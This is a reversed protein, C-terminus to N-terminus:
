KIKKGTTHAKFVCVCVCLCHLCKLQDLLLHTPFLFRYNLFNHHHDLVPGPQICVPVRDFFTADSKYVHLRADATNTRPSILYRTWFFPQAFPPPPPGWLRTSSESFTEFNRRMVRQWICNGISGLSVLFESSLICFITTPQMDSQLKQLWGSWFFFDFSLSFPFINTARTRDIKTQRVLAARTLPLQINFQETASNNQTVFM